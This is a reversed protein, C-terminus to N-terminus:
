MWIQKMYARCEELYSGTPKQNHQGSSEVMSDLLDHATDLVISRFTPSRVVFGEMFFYRM